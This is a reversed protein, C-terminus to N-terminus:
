TTAGAAPPSPPTEPKNDVKTSSLNLDIPQTTIMRVIMNLVGLILVQYLPPFWAQGELTQVIFALIALINLWLTKSKYWKKM